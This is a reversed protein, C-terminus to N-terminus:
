EAIKKPANEHDTTSVLETLKPQQIQSLLDAMKSMNQALESRDVQDITDPDFRPGLGSTSLKQLAGQMQQYAVLDKPPQCNLFQAQQDIYQYATMRVGHKIKIGPFAVFHDVLHPDDVMDIIQHYADETFIIQNREAICGMRAAMNIVSGAVNFNSNLDKYIVGRGESIGVTINFNSHCNCWGDNQFKVCLNESSKEHAFKLAALAFHLHIDHLGDFSFVIAAGDGTPLRIVDTQFNISNAQAYEVYRKSITSFAHKLCATLEDVVQIQTLTRRCSYKEVDLFVVQLNAIRNHQEMISALHKSM